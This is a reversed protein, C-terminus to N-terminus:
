RKRKTTRKRKPATRKRASKRTKKKASKRKPNVTVKMAGSVPKGTANAKAQMRALASKAGNSKKLIIAM